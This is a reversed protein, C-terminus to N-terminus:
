RKSDGGRGGNRLLLTDRHHESAAKEMRDLTAAVQKLNASTENLSKTQETENQALVSQNDMISKHEASMRANWRILFVVVAVGPVTIALYTVLTPIDLGM